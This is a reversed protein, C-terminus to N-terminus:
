AIKEPFSAPAPPAGPMLETVTWTIQSVAITEINEIIDMFSPTKEVSSMSAIIAAEFLPIFTMSDNSVSIVSIGGHSPINPLVAITSWYEALATAFLTITASSNPFGSKFFAELIGADGGNNDAGLVVGDAAYTSYAASWNLPFDGSPIGPAPKGSADIGAVNQYALWILESAVSPSLAM